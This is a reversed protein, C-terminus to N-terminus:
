QTHTHTAYNTKDKSIKDSAVVNMSRRWSDKDRGREIESRGERERARDRKGMVCSRDCVFSWARRQDIKQRACGLRGAFSPADARGPRDGVRYYAAIDM